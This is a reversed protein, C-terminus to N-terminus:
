MYFRLVTDMPVSKFDLNIKTKPNLKLSGIDPLDSQGYILVPLILLLCLLLKKM